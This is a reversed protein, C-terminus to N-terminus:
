NKLMNSLFKTCEYKVDIFKKELGVMKERLEAQVRETEMNIRIYDPLKKESELVEEQKEITELISDFKESLNILRVQHFDVKEALGVVSNRTLIEYLKVELQNIETSYLKITQDWNELEDSYLEAITNAM